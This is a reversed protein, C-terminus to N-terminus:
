VNVPERLGEVLKDSAEDFAPGQTAHRFDGALVDLIHRQRPDDWELLSDDLMIPFIVRKRRKKEQDLALDIEWRVWDSDSLSARSCVLIVRDRQRIERDIQSKLEEGWRAHEPASWYDVGREKLAQQLQLVLARDAASYSIFCSQLRPPDSNKGLLNHTANYKSEINRAISTLDRQLWGKRYGIESAVLTVVMLVFGVLFASRESAGSVYLLATAGTALGISAVLTVWLWVAESIVERTFSGERNM